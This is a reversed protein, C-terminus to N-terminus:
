PKPPELTQPEAPQPDAKLGVDENKLAKLDANVADTQERLARETEQLTKKLEAANTERELENSLHRLYSRAQGTWRGLSRALPPLKEPGLVVLAVLFCLVLESFGVDFM